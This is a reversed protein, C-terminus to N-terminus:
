AFLSPVIFPDTINADLIGEALLTREGGSNMWSEIWVRFRDCEKNHDYWVRTKISGQWGAATSTLGTSKTGYRQAITQARGKVEGAFQFRGM